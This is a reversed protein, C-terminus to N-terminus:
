DLASGSATSVDRGNMLGAILMHRLPEVYQIPGCRYSTKVQACCEDWSRKAAGLIIDLFEYCTM